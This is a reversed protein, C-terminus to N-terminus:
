IIVLVRIRDKVLISTMTKKKGRTKPVREELMDCCRVPSVRDGNREEWEEFWKEERKVLIGWGDWRRYM